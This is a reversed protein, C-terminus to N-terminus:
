GENIIISRGISTLEFVLDSDFQRCTLIQPEASLCMKVFGKDPIRQNDDDFDFSSPFCYEPLSDLSHEAIRLYLALAGRHRESGFREPKPKDRWWACNLPDHSRTVKTLPKSPGNYLEDALAQAASLSLSIRM